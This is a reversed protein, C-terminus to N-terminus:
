EPNNTNKDRDEESDSYSEAEHTKELSYDEAETTNSCHPYNPCGYTTEDFLKELLSRDITEPLEESAEENASVSTSLSISLALVAFLKYM